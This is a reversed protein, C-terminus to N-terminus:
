QICVGEYCGNVCNIIKADPKNNKCIRKFLTFSESEDDNIICEDYMKKEKIIEEKVVDIYLFSYEIRNPEYSNNSTIENCSLYELKACAGLYCQSPCNVIEYGVENNICTREILNGSDCVDWYFEEYERKIGDRTQYEESINNFLYYSLRIPNRSYYGQYGEDRDECTFNAKILNSPYTPIANRQNLTLGYLGLGTEIVEIETHLSENFKLGLQDKIVFLTLIFMGIIFITAKLRPM